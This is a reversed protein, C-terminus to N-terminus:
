LGERVQAPADNRSDRMFDGPLAVLLDIAPSLTKMSEVVDVPMRLTISTTKFWLRRLQMCACGWRM